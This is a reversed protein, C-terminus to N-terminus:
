HREGFDTWVDSYIITSVDSYMVLKYIIIHFLREGYVKTSFSWRSHIRLTHQRIQANKKSASCSLVIGHYNQNSPFIYGSCIMTSIRTSYQRNERPVSLIFMTSPAHVLTSELSRYVLNSSPCRLHVFVESASYWVTILISKLDESIGRRGFLPVKLDIPQVNAHRNFM